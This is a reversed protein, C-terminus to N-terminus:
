ISGMLAEASSMLERAKDPSLLNENYRMYVTLSKGTDFVGVTKEETMVAAPVVAAGILTYEGEPKLKREVASFGLMRTFKRGSISAYNKLTKSKGGRQLYIHLADIIRGNLECSTLMNQWPASGLAIRRQASIYCNAANQMLTLAELARCSVLLEGSLNAASCAEGFQASERLDSRYNVYNYNKDGKGCYDKNKLCLAALVAAYAPVSRLKCERKLREYLKPETEFYLVGLSRGECYESFVGSLEAENFEVPKKSWRKNLSAAVKLNLKLPQASKPIDERDGFSHLQLPEEPPEEAGNLFGIIESAVEALATEDAVLTHATILFTLRDNGAFVYFCSLAGTGTLFSEKRTSLEFELAQGLTKYDGFIIQPLEFSAPKIYAEADKGFCLSATLMPNLRAVKNLVETIRNKDAGASLEFAFSTRAEPSYVEFRRAATQFITSM